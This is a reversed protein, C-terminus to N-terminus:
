PRKDHVLRHGVGRETVIRHESHTVALRQRLKCVTVKLLNLFETPVDAPPPYMADRMYAHTAVRGNVRELADLCRELRPTLGMDDSIM